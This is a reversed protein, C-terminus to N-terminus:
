VRCIELAKAFSDFPDSHKPVFEHALFGDFDLDAIATAIARYNLEQTGDIEHRGPVGATHFHAIWQMNDRITRIVDGEMIQMHYIDYVLKVNPSGVGKMVAAGFATHDGQYGPHDVKSNLLEVCITVDHEAAFPAIKSLGAVCNDLAQREDIGPKRDGFMAILNKVGAKNALPIAAELEKWLMAHNAPDNFGVSIFGERRSAYGMSVQLGSEHVVSCEDPYVLDIGDFGASKLRRCLEPLPAQSTWRSLSQKLRGSAKASAAPGDSAEAVPLMSAAGAAAVAAIKGLAARRSMDNLEYAM